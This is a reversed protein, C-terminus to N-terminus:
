VEKEMYFSRISVSVEAVGKVSISISGSPELIMSDEFTLTNVGHSLINAEIINGGTLGTMGDGVEDWVYFTGQAENPSSANLNTPTHTNNNGITGINPQTRFTSIVGATDTSIRYGSIVLQKLSNKNKVYLIVGGTATTSLTDSAECTNIAYAEGQSSSIYHEESQINSSTLVRNNADVRASYKAGGGGNVIRMDGM